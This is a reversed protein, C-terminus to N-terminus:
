KFVSQFFFHISYRYVARYITLNNKVPMTTAAVIYRSHGDIAAVHTIGHMVLKENQDMHLKHGFYDARYPIPNTATRATARRRSTYIPSVASLAKGIRVEGVPINHKQRMYGTMM